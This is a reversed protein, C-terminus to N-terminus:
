NCASLNFSVNYQHERHGLYAPLILLRTLHPFLPSQITEYNGDYV